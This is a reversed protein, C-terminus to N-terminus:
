SISTQWSLLLPDEPVERASLFELVRDREDWGGVYAVRSLPALEEAPWPWREGSSLM